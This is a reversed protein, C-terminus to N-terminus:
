FSTKEMQRNEVNRRELVDIKKQCRVEVNLYPVKLGLKQIIKKLDRM